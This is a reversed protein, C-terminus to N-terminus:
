SNNYNAVLTTDFFLYYILNNKQPNSFFYSSTSIKSKIFPLPSKEACGFSTIAESSIGALDM